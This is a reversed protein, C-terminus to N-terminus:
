HGDGAILATLLCLPLVAITLIAGARPRRWALAGTGVGVLLVVFIWWVGATGNESYRRRQPAFYADFDYYSCVVYAAALPAVLAIERLGRVAAAIALGIGAVTAFFFASAAAGEEWPAAGPESGVAWVGFALLLALFAAVGFLAADLRIAARLM